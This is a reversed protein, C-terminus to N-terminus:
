LGKASKFDSSVFFYNLKAMMAIAASTEDCVRGTVFKAARSLIWKQAGVGALITSLCMLRELLGLYKCESHWYCTIYIILAM